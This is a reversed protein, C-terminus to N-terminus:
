ATDKREFTQLIARAQARDREPIREWISVVNDANPEGFMLHRLSVGLVDALKELTEVTLSRNRGNLFKTLTTDALGAQKCAATASIGKEDLAARIRARLDMGTNYAASLGENCRIITRSTTGYESVTRSMSCSSIARMRASASRLPMEGAVSDVFSRPLPLRNECISAPPESM